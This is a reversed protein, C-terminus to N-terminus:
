VDAVGESCDRRNDEAEAVWLKFANVLSLITLTLLATTAASMKAVKDSETMRLESSMYSKLVELFTATPMLLASVTAIKHGAACSICLLGALIGIIACLIVSFDLEM